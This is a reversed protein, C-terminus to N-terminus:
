LFAIESTGFKLIGFTKFKPLTPIIRGWLVYSLHNSVFACSPIIKVNFDSYNIIYNKGRCNDFLAHERTGVM